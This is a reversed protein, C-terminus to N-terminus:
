DPFCLMSHSSSVEPIIAVAIAVAEILAYSVDRNGPGPAFFALCFSVIAIPVVMLGIWVGFRDVQKILQTKEEKVEAVSANIKGIETEDGTAVVVGTGQGKVVSTASFAMNKRDGLSLKLELPQTKKSVPLSEGTLLAEQVALNSLAVLRLDAPIKNGSEVFVIDGPVVDEANIERRAGDRIVTAKSSLMAKLAQTAREAKGEQVLGIIVNVAVVGLILGFEAWEQFGGAIAAAILLIYILISNVQRFVKHWFPEPKAEALKNKGFQQLRRAAEASTLGVVANSDLYQVVQEWPVAHTNTGRATAADSGGAVENDGERASKITRLVPIDRSQTKQTKPPAESTEAPDGLPRRDRATPSVKWTDRPAFFSSSATAGATTHMGTETVRPSFSESDGEAVTELPPNLPSEQGAARAQILEVISDSPVWGTGRRQTGPRHQVAFEQDEGEHSADGVDLGPERSPPYEGGEQPAIGEQQEAM